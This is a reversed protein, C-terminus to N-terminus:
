GASVREPARGAPRLTARAGGDGPLAPRLVRDGGEHRRACAVPLYGYAISEGTYGHNASTVYGLVRDGDLIPEKGMVVAAPDDLTLCCAPSLGRPGLGRAVGGPRHVRGERAVAFGLGAEYPTHETHMDAGWLRYGKELRLSDFAGRGGAIM